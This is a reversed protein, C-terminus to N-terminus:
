RSRLVGGVIGGFIDLMMKEQERRSIYEQQQQQLQQEMEVVAEKADQNGLSAAQRYLMLRYAYPNQVPFDATGALSALTVMSDPDGNKVGDKLILIAERISKKDNRQLLLSALNDFAAPYIKKTLDRYIAAAANPNIFGLARAYQYKYRLETPYAESAQRCVSVAETPNEKLESFRAGLITTPKRPDHPNAALSDCREVAQITQKQREAEAIQAQQAMQQEKAIRRDEADRRLQEQQIRRQEEQTEYERALQTEHRWRKIEEPTFLTLPEGTEPHFGQNDFFEYQGNADRWFWLRPRGTATDFLEVGEISSIRRPPSARRQAQQKYQKVIEPTVPLLEEGSEPHFGMLNFIEIPGDRDRWFWVIPEGTRLDFFVPDAELIREPRKGSAYAQLREAIEPTYVRCLRGTVPDVGPRELYNVAGERSLVYCKTAKGTSAEFYQNRAGRSLLLAHVILLAVIGYLGLKRRSSSVSFFRSVFFIALLWVFLSIARALHEDLNFVQAIQDVYGSAVWYLLARDFLWLLPLAILGIAVISLIIKGVGDLQRWMDSVHKYIIPDQSM